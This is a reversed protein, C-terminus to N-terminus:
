IQRHSKGQSDFEAKARLLPCFIKHRARTSVSISPIIKLCAILPVCLKLPRSNLLFPLTLILPDERESPIATSGRLRAPCKTTCVTAYLLSFVLYRPYNFLFFTRYLSLVPM